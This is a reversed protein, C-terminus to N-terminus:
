EQEPDDTDRVEQEVLVSELWKQQEETLGLSKLKERLETLQHPDKQQNFIKKDSSM